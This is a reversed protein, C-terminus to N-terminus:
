GDGTRLRRVGMECPIRDFGRVSESGTRFGCLDCVLCSLYPHLRPMHGNRVLPLSEDHMARRPLEKVKSRLCVKTPLAHRQAWVWTAGCKNCRIYQGLRSDDYEHGHKGHRTYRWYQLMKSSARPESVRVGVMRELLCPCLAYPSLSSLSYTKECVAPVQLEHPNGSCDSAPKSFVYGQFAVCQCM